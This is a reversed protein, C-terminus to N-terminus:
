GFEWDWSHEKWVEESLGALEASILEPVSASALDSCFFVLTMWSGDHLRDIPTSELRVCIRWEPLWNRDARISVPTVVYAPRSGGMVRASQKLVIDWIRAPDGELFGAMSQAIEVSNIDVYRGDRLRLQSQANM